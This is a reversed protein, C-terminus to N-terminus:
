KSIGVFKGNADYINGAQTTITGDGNATVIQGNLYFMCGKGALAPNDTACPDYAQNHWDEQEHVAYNQERKSRTFDVVPTIDVFKSPDIDIFTSNDIDSGPFPYMCPFQCMKTSEERLEEANLKVTKNASLFAILAFAFRLKRRNIIKM